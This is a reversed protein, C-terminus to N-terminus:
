RFLRLWWHVFDEDVLLLLVVAHLRGRWREVEVLVQVLCFLEHVRMRGRDCVLLKLFSVSGLM